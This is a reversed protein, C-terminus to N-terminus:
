EKPKGTDLDIEVFDDEKFQYSKLFNYLNRNWFWIKFTFVWDKIPGFM